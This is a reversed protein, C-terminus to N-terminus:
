KLRASVILRLSYSLRNWMNHCLQVHLASYLLQWGEPELEPQWEMIKTLIYNRLIILTWLPCQTHMTCDRLLPIRSTSCILKWVPGSSLWSLHLPSMNLCVTGSVLLPSLFLETASPLYDPAASSWHHLRAPVYDSVLRSMQWRVSSTSSTRLQLGTSVNTCKNTNTNPYSLLSALTKTVTAYRHLTLTLTLTLTVAFVHVKQCLSQSGSYSKTITNTSLNSYCYLRSGEPQPKPQWQSATRPWWQWGADWRYCQDAADSQRGCRRSVNLCM